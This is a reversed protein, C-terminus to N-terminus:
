KGKRSQRLALKVGQRIDHNLDSLSHPPLTRAYLSLAATFHGKNVLCTQLDRRYRQARQGLRKALTPDSEYDALSLRSAILNRLMRETDASMNSDHLRREFFVEPVVVATGHTATRYILDFDECAKLDTNFGGESVIVSTRFLPSSAITFNEQILIERCEKAALLFSAGQSQELYPGLAPCTSFHDASRTEGTFNRYNGVCFAADPNAEQEAVQRSIKGPLMLDDADFFTVYKGKALELGHNRPAACSGSNQQYRYHVCHGLAKVINATGDTSGDDVVIIELPSYDQGLITELTEQLYAEANYAAVIVTVLPKDM